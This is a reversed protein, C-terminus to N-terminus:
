ALRETPEPSAVPTCVLFASNSVATTLAYAALAPALTTADPESPEVDDRMRRLPVVKGNTKVGKLIGKKCNM